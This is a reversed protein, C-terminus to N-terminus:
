PSSCGQKKLHFVHVVVVFIIVIVKKVPVLIEKFRLVLFSRSLQGEGSLIRAKPTAIAVTSAAILVSTSVM